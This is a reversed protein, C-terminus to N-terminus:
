KMCNEHVVNRTLFLLPKYTSTKNFCYSLKFDGNLHDTHAKTPSKASKLMLKKRAATVPNTFCM